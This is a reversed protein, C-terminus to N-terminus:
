NRGWANDRPMDRTYYYTKGRRTGLGIKLFTPTPMVTVKYLTWSRQPRLDAVYRALDVLSKAEQLM